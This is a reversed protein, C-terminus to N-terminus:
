NKAINLPGLVYNEILDSWERICNENVGVNGVRNSLEKCVGFALLQLIMISSQFQPSQVSCLIENIFFTTTVFYDDSM